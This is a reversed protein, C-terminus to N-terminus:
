RMGSEFVSGVSLRPARQTGTEVAALARPLAEAVDWALVGHGAQGTGALTGALGHVYVAAWAAEFAGLGTALLAAVAGTLVDGTGATALEPGGTTNVVVTGSPEAVITRWGKLVVVCQLGDAARRASAMRDSQVEEVGAHLLRALEGPHPTIVTPGSRRRLAGTDDVLVNLGDADIVLPLAVGDLLSLVLGRQAEGAGMGPGLAVADARALVAGFRDLADPGLVDGDSVVESLVEALVCAKAVHVAETTGLTTYGAGMRVAARCTLLAAGTMAQSGALVAVAGDSRKHADAARRPVVRSPDAPELAWAGADRVPIGIDVVVVRGANVSGSSVATGYKEAAMVITTEARVAPGSVSGTLGDVGSPIDAAVVRAGCGNIAEVVAAHRGDIPGRFGTGFVADVVADMGELRAPDFPEIVVGEARLRRLHAGAAGRSGDPDDIVLCRVGVGARALLRAAAFGDGGNNGRGCVVAVSRGYRGGTLAIVARALSAGAREMLVEAPTGARIAAADARAMEEPTM